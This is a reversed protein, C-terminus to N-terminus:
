RSAPAEKKKSKGGCQASSGNSRPRWNMATTQETCYVGALQWQLNRMGAKLLFGLYNM